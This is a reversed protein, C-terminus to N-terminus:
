LAPEEFLASVSKGHHICDIAQAIFPAAPIIKLKEGLVDRKTESIHVTDTVCVNAIPLEALIECAQKVLLGHSAYLSISSAEAKQLAEVGVRVTKATSIMDDIVVVHNGKIQEIGIISRIIPEGTDHDRVKRLIALESGIRNSYSEAAAAAGVDPAVVVVGDGFRRRIDALLERRLYIHDVYPIDFFGQIQAAHLDFLCVRDNPGLLESIQKAILKATIPSRAKDKRDQRAYGFYPIVVTLRGASSRRLTDILVYLELINEAPANTSQVLFVDCDRVNGVPGRKIHVKVEDDDHRGVFAPLLEVDLARAIAQALGPNSTGTVLKLQGHDPM